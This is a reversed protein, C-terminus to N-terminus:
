IGGAYVGDAKMAFLAQYLCRSVPAAPSISVTLSLPLLLRASVWSVNNGGPFEDSVSVDGAACWKTAVAAFADCVGM